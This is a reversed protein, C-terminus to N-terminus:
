WGARKLLRRVASQIETMSLESLAGSTRLMEVGIGQEWPGSFPMRDIFHRHRGMIVLSEVQAANAIHAFGSDVGIFLNARSVLAAQLDLELRNNLPLITPHDPFMPPTGLEVIALNDVTRLTAIISEAQSRTLSREADASMFHVAVLPRQGIKKPIDSVERLLKEHNDRLGLQPRGTLPFDLGQRSFANLLNGKLYYNDFNIQHRTPNSIRLGFWNCPHQDIHLNVINLFRLLPQLIIWESPCTVPVVQQIYPLHRILSAYQVAVIWVVQDGKLALHRAVPEAAVIDGIQNILILFVINKRKWRARAAIILISLFTVPASTFLAIARYFSQKTALKGFKQSITALVSKSRALTPM